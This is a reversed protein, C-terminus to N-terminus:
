NKQKKKKREGSPLPSLHPSLKESLSTQKKGEGKGKGKPSLFSRERLKEEVEKL